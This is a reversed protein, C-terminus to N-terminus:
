FVGYIDSFKDMLSYSPFTAKKLIANAAKM